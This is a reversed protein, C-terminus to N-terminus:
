TDYPQIDGGRVNFIFQVRINITYTYQGIVLRRLINLFHIFTKKFNFFFNFIALVLKMFLVFVIYYTIAQHHDM